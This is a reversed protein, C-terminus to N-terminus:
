FSIRRKQWRSKFSLLSPDCAVDNQTTNWSASSDFYFSRDGLSTKSHAPTKLRLMSHSSSRSSYSYSPMHHLRQAAIDTAACVFRNHIAYKSTTCHISQIQNNITVPTAYNYIHQLHSILNYTSGFLLSNCYVITSLNLSFVLTVTSTTALFIDGDFNGHELLLM